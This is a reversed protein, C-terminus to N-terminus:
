IRRKVSDRGYYALWKSLLAEDNSILLDEQVAAKEGISIGKIGKFVFASEFSTSKYQKHIGVM